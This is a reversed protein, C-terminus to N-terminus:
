FMGEQTPIDRLLSQKDIGLIQDSTLQKPPETTNVWPPNQALPVSAQRGKPPTAKRKRRSCIVCAFIVFLMFLAGVGVGIGASAGASLERKQYAHPASNSGGPDATNPLVAMTITFPSQTSSVCSLADRESASLFLHLSLLVQQIEPSLASLPMSIHRPM